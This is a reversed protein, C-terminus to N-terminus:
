RHPKHEDNTEQMGKPLPSISYCKKKEKKKNQKVDVNKNSKQTEGKLCTPNFSNQKKTHITILIIKLYNNQEKIITYSFKKAKWDMIRKM